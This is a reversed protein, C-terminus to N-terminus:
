SYAHPVDCDTMAQCWAEPDLTHESDLMTRLVDGGDLRCRVDDMPM